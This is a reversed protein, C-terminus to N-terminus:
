GQGQESLGSGATLAPESGRVSVRQGAGLLHSM